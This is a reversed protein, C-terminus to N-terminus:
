TAASAERVHQSRGALDPELGVARVQGGFCGRDLNVLRAAHVRAIAKDIPAERRRTQPSQSPDNAEVLHLDDVLELDITM